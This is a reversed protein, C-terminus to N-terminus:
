PAATTDVTTPESWASLIGAGTEYAVEVTLNPVLPVFETTMTVGPGPDADPYERESWSGTDGVRWRAYWTLDARDAPGSAAILVRVGTSVGGETTGGLPGETDPNQGVAERVPMASIITPTPLPAPAVRNGVPAPLGEETAPNWADINPDAAIWTFTLRGTLPDRKVPAKVQVPIDLGGDQSRLRVYREGLIKRGTARLTAVGRKPAMREAYARKTLRRAQSHSPVQAGTPEGALQKGLRAISDEDVWPDTDVTAWAHNNSVYTVPIQNVANEEEVGDTVSLSIIDDDTVTVTPMYYRGSYAVLAGDARPSVWGDCCALLAARVAKHPDTLKHIVCGRYRPETAPSAEDSQWTVAAGDPWDRALTGSIDIIFGGGPRPSVSTVTRTEADGAQGGIAVTMGAALGRAEVVDVFGDGAERDGITVTQVASLPVPEDCDDAAATWYSLTPAFLRDWKKQLIAALEAAYGPDTIPLRPREGHRILEYHATQLIVNESWKWTLPDTLVQTPDRWDFVLQMRMVLSLPMNNPGGTPYIMQYNKTKVPASLVAGTVVGDGRHNPTFQDPIKAIVASFATNNRPGLTTFIKVIDSKEGFQGDKGAQVRGDPLVTVRTDGLYHGIIADVRDQHFAGVDIATGDPATVYLSFAMGLRGTGYGAVAPPIPVKIGTETQEARPAKTGLGSVFNGAATLATSATLLTGLGVSGFGVGATTGFVALGAVAGVGTAVLAATGALTLISGLTKSM